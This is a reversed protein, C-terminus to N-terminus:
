LAAEDHSGREFERAILDCVEVTRPLVCSLHKAHEGLNDVLVFVLASRDRKPHLM